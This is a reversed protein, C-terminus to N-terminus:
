HHIPISCVRNRDLLGFVLIPAKFDRTSAFVTDGAGTGVVQLDETTALFRQVMRGDRRVRARGRLRIGPWLSSQFFADRAFLGDCADQPLIRSASLTTGIEIGPSSSFRGLQRQRYTTRLPLQNGAFLADLSQTDEVGSMWAADAIDWSSRRARLEDPVGPLAAFLSLMAALSSVSYAVQWRVSYKQIASLLLLAAMFWFLLAPTQYRSAGAQEIGFKLRGLAALFGTGLSFVMVALPVTQWPNEPRKWFAQLVKGAMLVVAGAALLEGFAITWWKWSHALFIAVYHVVELPRTLAEMPNGHSVPQKYGQFYLLTTLIAISSYAAIWKRSLGIAIATAIAIWWVLVGSALCLPASIACFAVAAALRPDGSVKQQVVAVIAGTAFLFNLVFAIQFTWIFNEMQAPSFCCFLALATTVAAHRPRFWTQMRAIHILLGAHAAQVLFISAFPVLGRGGAWLTDALIAIRAYLPRHESHFGFLIAPTIHFDADKYNILVTWTDAFLAPSYAQGFAYLTYAVVSFAGCLLLSDLLIASLRKSAAPIPTSPACQKSRKM